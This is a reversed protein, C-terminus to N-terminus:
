RCFSELICAAKEYITPYFEKNEFKRGPKDLISQIKYKDIKGSTTNDHFHDKVVSHLDLISDVALYKIM